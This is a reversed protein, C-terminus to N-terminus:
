SITRGPNSPMPLLKLKEKLANIEQEHQQILAKNTKMRYLADEIERNAFQRAAEKGLEKLLWIGFEKKWDDNKTRVTDIGDLVKPLVDAGIGVKTLYASDDNILGQVRVVQKQLYESLWQVGHPIYPKIGGVPVPTKAHSALWEPTIKTTTYGDQDNGNSWADWISQHGDATHIIFKLWVGSIKQGNLEMWHNAGAAFNFNQNINQVTGDRKLMAVAQITFPKDTNNFVTWVGDTMNVAQATVNAASLVVCALSLVACMTSRIM